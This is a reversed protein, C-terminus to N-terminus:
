MGSSISPRKALMSLLSSCRVGMWRIPARGVLLEPIRHLEYTPSTLHIGLEALLLYWRYAADAEDDTVVDERPIRPSSLELLLEFLLTRVDSEVDAAAAGGVRDCYVEGSACCVEEKGDSMMPGLRTSM